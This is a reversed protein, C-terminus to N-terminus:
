KILFNVRFNSQDSTCRLAEGCSTRTASFFASGKKATKFNWVITGCGMGPHQCDPAANQGPMTPFTQTEGKQILNSIKALTWDTSHLTIQIPTGAKIQIKLGNSSESLSKTKQIANVSWTPQMSVATILLITWAINAMRKM